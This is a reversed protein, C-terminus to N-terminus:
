QVLQGLMSRYKEVKVRTEDLVASKVSLQEEVASVEEYLEVKQEELGDLRGEREAVARQVQHQADAMRKLSEDRRHSLEKCSQKLERQTRLLEERDVIMAELKSKLGENRSMVTELGNELERL